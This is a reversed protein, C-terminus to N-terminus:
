DKRETHKNQDHPFGEVLILRTTPTDLATCQVTGYGQRWRVRGVGHDKDDRGLHIRQEEKLQTALTVFSLTQHQAEMIYQYLTRQREHKM